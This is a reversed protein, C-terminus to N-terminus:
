VMEGLLRASRASSEQSVRLAWHRPRVDDTFSAVKIDGTPVGADATISIASVHLPADAITVADTGTASAGGVDTVVVTVRGNGEESYTHGDSQVDFGGTTNPVISTANSVTGDGWFIEASYDSATRAPDDDTFSAATLNGTAVGETSTIPSATVHLAADVILATSTDTAAAGGSDSITVTVTYSGEEAYTHGASTIDFGGSLYAVLTGATVPTGDGWDINAAYDGIAGAPDDDSFSAVRISGTPAGETGAIPGVNLHLAADAIRANGVVATNGGGGDAITVSLTYTGEKVYTHGASMVEFVGGPKAAISGAELLSGDGWDISATYSGATGNPDDDLFRAITISGTPAGETGSIPVVSAHLAADAITASGTTTTSSGGRDTVTVSFTYSGETAYVHGTGVVDFGGSGDAVITGGGLPSGDGWDIAASYDQATGAPDDDTFTAVTGPDTAGRATGIIPVVSAHLAADAIQANGAAIAGAGGVDRVTVSVTFSGEQAYTHGTSTVDFGGSVNARIVGSTAPSGDGWDITASYDGVVGGPDDDTFNAVTVAGTSAAATGSVPVAAAHLAADAIRAAGSTTVSHGAGDNIVISIAYNGEEAYTHSASVDFGGRSNATVLGAASLSGDGWTITATFQNATANPNSDTISAVRVSGTSVGEIGRIASGAAGLVVTGQAVITAAGTARATSGESDTITVALALSGASAYTHSGFVDFGGAANASVAGASSTGDGWTISVQYEDATAFPNVDTFSAVQATFAVGATAGISSGTAALPADNVLAVALPANGIVSLVPATNTGGPLTSVVIDPLGNHTFVGTTLGESGSLQTGVDYIRPAGLTGDGNNLFVAAGSGSTGGFHASRLAVVDPHGDGNVDAIALSGLGLQPANNVPTQFTGDGKGLLLDLGGGYSESFPSSNVTLMGHSVVLDLNGDGNLDAAAIAQVGGGVSIAPLTTFTGDSRGLLLTVSGPNRNSSSGLAFDLRGDHNFDGAVASGISTFLAGVQVPQGLTGGPLIPTAAITGTGDVTVINFHGPHGADSLGAALTPPATSLSTDYPTAAASVDFTGDGRNILLGVRNSNSTAVIDPKGDGNADVPLLQAPQGLNVFVTNVATTGSAGIHLANLTGDGLGTIIGILGAANEAIAVDPHGDRNFDAIIAHATHGVGFIETAFFKAPSFAGQEGFPDPTAVLISLQAGGNTAVIDARGDGNFDAISVDGAPPLVSGSSSYPVESLIDNTKPNSHRFTGDGNGAMVFVWQGASVAMDLNGDRDFDGLAVAQPAVYQQASPVSGGYNNVTLYTPGAQFTGDGNGLLVFVGGQRFDPSALGTAVVVLDLKGDHNLDGAALAHGFTGSPSAGLPRSSRRRLPATEM